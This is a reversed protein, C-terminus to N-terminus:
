LTQDPSWIQVDDNVFQSRSAVSKVIESLMDQTEINEKTTCALHCLSSCFDFGSDDPCAFFYQHGASELPEEFVQVNDGDLTVLAIKPTERELHALIFTCDARKKLERKSVINGM